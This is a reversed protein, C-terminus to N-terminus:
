RLGAAKSRESYGAHLLLSLSAFIVTGEAKRKNLFTGKRYFDTKLELGHTYM